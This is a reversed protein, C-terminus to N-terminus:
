NNPLAPPAPPPPPPPPMPGEPMMPPKKEPHESGRHCTYCTVTRLMFKIPEINASTDMDHDMMGKNMDHDHDMDKNMDHDMDHHPMMKFYNRNIDISMLMMKRAIQKEPKEDSAFDMKKEAENRVHCFNCKVGLSATFFHMVSDLDHKSIDKPLVKLNQFGPEDYTTFAQFSIVGLACAIIIILSKKM